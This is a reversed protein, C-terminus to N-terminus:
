RLVSGTTGQPAKREVLLMAQWDPTNGLHTVAYDSNALLRTEVWQPCHIDQWDRAYQLGVVRTPCAADYDTYDIVIFRDFRALFDDSQVVNDRLQPCNRRFADMHKHAQLGFLGSEQKMAAAEDLIFYYRERDTSYHWRELFGGPFEVVVPLDEYGFRLDFRGAFARGDHQAAYWLPNALLVLVFASLVAGAFIQRGDTRSTGPSLLDRVGHSYASLFHSALHAIAICYGIISPLLYRDWFIPKVTRSLLWTAATPIILALAMVLLSRKGAVPADQEGSVEQWRGRVTHILVLCLVLAAVFAVNAFAPSVLGVLEFFDSLRPSPLWGRPRAVDSQVLFAPLYFLFSMWGGVVAFYIGKRFRGRLVDAVVFAALIAGSYFLGFLHTNVIAAHIVALGALDRFSFTGRADLSAYQYVAAACLALFLGYMRAEVNQSLVIESTLFVTLTGICTPWFGYVKRLTAWVLILAAAIGLASFLRLSLESAGVLQAWLWGLVFYLPPTVNLKDHFATWMSSLSPDALLYWSYLEDHWLSKGPSILICSGFLSLVAAALVLM